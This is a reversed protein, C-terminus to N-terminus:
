TNLVISSPPFPFSLPIQDSSSWVGLSLLTNGEVTNPIAIRYWYSYYTSTPTNTNGSCSSLAGENGKANCSELDSYCRWYFSLARKGNGVNCQGGDFSGDAPVCKASPTNCPGETDCLIYSCHSDGGGISQQSASPLPSCLFVFLLLSVALISPSSAM